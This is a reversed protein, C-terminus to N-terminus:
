IYIYYWIWREVLTPLRSHGTSPCFHYDNLFCRLSLEWVCKRESLFLSCCHDFHFCPSFHLRLSLFVWEYSFFILQWRSIKLDHFNMLLLQEINRLNLNLTSKNISRTFQLGVVEIKKGCNCIIKKAGFNHFAWRILLHKEHNRKPGIL